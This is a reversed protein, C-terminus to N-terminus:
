ESVEDLSPLASTKHTPNDYFFDITVGFKTVHFADEDFTVGTEAAVMGCEIPVHHALGDELCYFWMLGGNMGLFDERSFTGKRRMLVRAHERWGLYEILEPLNTPKAM